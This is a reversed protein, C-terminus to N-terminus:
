FYSQKRFNNKLFAKDIANLVKKTSIPKKLVVVDDIIESDHIDLIVISKLDCNIKRLMNLLTLGESDPLAINVIAFSFTNDFFELASAGNSASVVEFGYKELILKIIFRNDEDNEVLLIRNKYNLNKNKNIERNKYINKSGIRKTHNNNNKM